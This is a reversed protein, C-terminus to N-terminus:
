TVELLTLPDHEPLSPEPLDNQPSEGIKTHQVNRQHFRNIAETSYAKLAKM